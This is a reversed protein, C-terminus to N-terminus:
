YVPVITVRGPGGDLGSSSTWRVNRPGGAGGAGVAITIVTGRRLGTLLGETCEGARGPHGKDLVGGQVGGDGGNGSAVRRNRPAEAGTQGAGGLGGAAIVRNGGRVGASSPSGDTGDRGSNFRGSGVASTVLYGSAEGGGGGGYALVRAKTAQWPWAFTYTGAAMYRKEGGLGSPPAARALAADIAAKLGEPTVAPGTATGTISEPITATRIVGRVTTSSNPTTISFDRWYTSSADLTPDQSPATGGSAKVSRYLKGDSGTVWSPHEFRQSSNWELIGRQAVEVAAGTLERWIQNFVELTLFENVGYEAPLGLARTLGAVEPTQVLASQAAWKRILLADLDRAM